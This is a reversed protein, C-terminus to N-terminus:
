NNAKSKRWLLQALIISVLTMVAAFIALPFFMGNSEGARNDHGHEAENKNKAKQEETIESGDENHEHGHAADLAEKLSVGSGGGAFGLSYSGRTVVEDGPFLGSVIEVYSENQEGIVVPARVFANPLDFDKVFVIRNAPDGQIASLPVTLVDSRKKLIISFEARMGPALRGEANDLKFIGEVTGAERDAAVGFRILEADILETGLAPIRIHAVSGVRVLSAEQEPIKAIAWMQSRDSIDMLEADPEVPKGLGVHSDIVLGDQPAKLEISPPPNGIQRTEVTALIQGAKVYDGEFANLGVVRGAIRSSLVSRKSPIEEVRGIAFVTTEFTKYDAEVTEIRLNKVGNEDLIITNAAREPDIQAFMAPLYLLLSITSIIIKKM